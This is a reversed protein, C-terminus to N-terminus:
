SRNEAHFLPFAAVIFFYTGLVHKISGKDQKIPQLIKEVAHHMMGKGWLLETQPSNYGEYLIALSVKIIHIIIPSYCNGWYYRFNKFM